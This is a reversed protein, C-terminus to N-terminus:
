YDVSIQGLAQELDIKSFMLLILSSLNNLEATRLDAEAIIVELYPKVGERYQLLVTNYIDKSISINEKTMNYGALNSKYSALANYYGTYMEDRLAITDLALRQFSLKSKQLDHIRKGGEFIPFAVSIGVTSNPFTKSYLRSFDDNQFIYNYNAFGSLSPLFGLRNYDNMSKQLRINTELLKYEIRNRYPLDQLTDVIIEKQMDHFSNKLKLDKEVPYGMLQKLHIYKANLSNEVGIKQSRANNISVNARDYDIKDTLGSNYLALADKLSQSLRNIDEIIINLMERTLLIDYYAKSIDVVLQIAEKLGSQSVQQRYDRATRAALWLDSSFIKQNASFQITSNNKVGTTVEIKPGEPNTFNPFIVVPQKLYHTFGANSSIQPFWDSLASKVSQDAIKEDIKLQDILPQHRMAYDICEKIGASDTFFSNHDQAKIYPSVLLFIIAFIRIRQINFHGIDGM